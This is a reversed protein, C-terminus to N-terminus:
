CDRQTRGGAFARSRVAARAVAAMAANYRSISPAIEEPTQERDLAGLSTLVEPTGDSASQKPM